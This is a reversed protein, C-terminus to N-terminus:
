KEKRYYWVTTCGCAKLVQHFHFLRHLHFKGRNFHTCVLCPKRSRKTKLPDCAEWTTEASFEEPKNTSNWKKEDGYRKRYRLEYLNKDHYKCCFQIQHLHTKTHGHTSLIIIICYVTNSGNPWVANNLTRPITQPCMLVGSIPCWCTRSKVAYKFFIYEGKLSLTNNKSM